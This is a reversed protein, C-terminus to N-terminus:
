FGYVFVKLRLHFGLAPLSVLKLYCIHEPARRGGDAVGGLQKTFTSNTGYQYAFLSIRGRYRGLDGTFFGVDDFYGARGRRFTM